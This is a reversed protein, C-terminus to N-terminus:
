NRIVEEFISRPQVNQLMKQMFVASHAAKKQEQWLPLTAPRMANPARSCLQFVQGCLYGQEDLHHLQEWLMLRSFYGTLQQTLIQLTSISQSSEEPSDDITKV